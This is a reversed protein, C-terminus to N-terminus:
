HGRARSKDILGRQVLVLQGCMDNLTLNCKGGLADM